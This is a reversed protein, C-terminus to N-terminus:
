LRRRKLNVAYYPLNSYTCYKIVPQFIGFSVRILSMVGPGTVKGPSVVTVGAFAVAMRRTDSACVRLSHGQKNVRRGVCAIGVLLEEDVGGHRKM